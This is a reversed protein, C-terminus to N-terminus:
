NLYGLTLVVVNHRSLWGHLPTYTTVFYGYNKKRLMLKQNKKLINELHCKVYHSLCFMFFFIYYHFYHFCHCSAATEEVRIGRRFHKSGKKRCYIRPDSVKQKRGVQRGQIDDNHQGQQEDDDPLMTYWTSVPSGTAPARAHRVTTRHSHGGQVRGTQWSRRGAGNERRGVGGLGVQGVTRRHRVSRRHRSEEM